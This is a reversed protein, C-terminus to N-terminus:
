LCGFLLRSIGQSLRLHTCAYIHRGLGPPCELSKYATEHMVQSPRRHTDDKDDVETEHYRPPDCMLSMALSTQPLSSSTRDQSSLSCARVCLTECSSIMASRRPYRQEVAHSQPPMRHDNSTCAHQMYSNLIILETINMSGTYQKDPTDRCPSFRRRSHLSSMEAHLM